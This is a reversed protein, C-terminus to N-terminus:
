RRKEFGALVELTGCVKVKSRGLVLEAVRVFISLRGEGKVRKEADLIVTKSALLTFDLGIHSQALPEKTAATVRIGVRAKLFVFNKSQCESFLGGLLAKRGGLEGHAIVGLDSDAAWLINM